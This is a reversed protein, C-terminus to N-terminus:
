EVVVRGTCPQGQADLARLQYLGAPLGHVSVAGAAVTTIRAVRGLADLLQVPTGSPLQPLRLLAHAPNPYLALPQVTQAPRTALAAGALRAKFYGPPTAASLSLPGFACTQEFTGFVLADGNAAFGLQHGSDNGPGGAQQVWRVQGQPSYATLLVDSGGATTLPFSGVQASGAVNGVAYPNAAADLAVYNYADSGSSGLARAWQLTGLPSYKVLFGDLGGAGPLSTADFSASGSFLGAAYVNGAADVQASYVRDEGTGGGQRAWQLAGQADFRAVLVDNLGTPTLTAGSFVARQSFIDHLVVEGAPTVALGPAFWTATGTSSLRELHFAHTLAQLAGTAASVRALFVGILPTSGTPYTLTTPGITLPSAYLGAVYVSGTADLGIGQASVGSGSSQQAWQASGQPSFRVVFLRASTGGPNSLTVGNSLDITNTFSGTVFVNGAADVAVGYVGENGPTSFPVMWALGGTPTFKAVYGDNGGQSTLVTGGVLTTGTFIGAVYLNGAADYVSRYPGPSSLGLSAADSWAPPTNQAPGLAPLLLLLVLLLPRLPCASFFSKM